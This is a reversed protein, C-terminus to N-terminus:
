ETRLGHNEFCRFLWESPENIPIGAFVTQCICTSVIVCVRNSEVVMQLLTQFYSYQANNGWKGVAAPNALFRGPDSYFFFFLSQASLLSLHDM